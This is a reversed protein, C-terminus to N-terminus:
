SGHDREIDDIDIEGLRLYPAAERWPYFYKAVFLLLNDECARELLTEHDALGVRTAIESVSPSSMSSPDALDGHM